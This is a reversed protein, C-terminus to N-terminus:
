DEKYLQVIYMFWFLILQQWRINFERACSPVLSEVEEEEILEAMKCLQMQPLLQQNRSIDVKLVQWGDIIKTPNVQNTDIPICKSMSLNKNALIAWNTSCHVTVHCTRPEIGVGSEVQGPISEPRWGETPLYFSYWCVYHLVANLM